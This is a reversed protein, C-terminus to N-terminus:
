QVRVARGSSAQCARREHFELAEPAPNSFSCNVDWLQSGIGKERVRFAENEVSQNGECLGKCTDIEEIIESPQYERKTMQLYLHNRGIESSADLNM